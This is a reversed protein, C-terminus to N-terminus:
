MVLSRSHCCVVVKRAFDNAGMFFEHFASVFYLIGAKEAASERYHRANRRNGYRNRFFTQRIPQGGLFYANQVAM